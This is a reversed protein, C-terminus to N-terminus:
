IGDCAPCLGRPSGDRSFRAYGDLIDCSVAAENPRGACNAITASRCLSSVQVNDIGRDQYPCEATFPEVEPLCVPTVDQTDWRCEASQRCGAEDLPQCTVDLSFICDGSFSLHEDPDGSPSPGDYYAKAEYACTGSTEAELDLTYKEYSRDDRAWMQLTGGNGSPSWSWRRFPYQTSADEGLITENSLFRYVLPVGFQLGPDGETLTAVFSRGIMEPNSATGGGDGGCAVLGASLLTTSLLANRTQM